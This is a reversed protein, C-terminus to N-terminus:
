SLPRGSRGGHRHVGRCPPPGISDYALAGWGGASQGVVIVGDPDVDPFATLYDVVTKIQRATEMAAKHYDANECGDYGETWPGGTAGYGLRLFLAVAYRHRLFWQVSESHCGALLMGPRQAASPPSGHNIIVLRPKKVGEPLCIHGRMTWDRGSTDAIPIALAIDRADIGLANGAAIAPGSSAMLFPVLALATARQLSALRM